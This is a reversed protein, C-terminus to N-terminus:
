ERGWVHLLWACSPKTLMLGEQKLLATIGVLGLEKPYTGHEFCLQAPLQSLWQINLFEVKLSLSAPPLIIAESLRGKKSALCVGAGNQM